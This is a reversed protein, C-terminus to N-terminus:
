RQDPVRRWPWAKGAAGILAVPGAVAVAPGALVAAAFRCPVDLTGALMVARTWSLLVM